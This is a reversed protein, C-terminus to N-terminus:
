NWHRDESETFKWWVNQLSFVAVESPNRIWLRTIASGIPNSTNQSSCEIYEIYSRAPIDCLQTNSYQVSGSCQYGHCHVYLQTQLGSNISTFWCTGICMGWVLRRWGPDLYVGLHHIAFESSQPQIYILPTWTERQHHIPAWLFQHLHRHVLHSIVNKLVFM